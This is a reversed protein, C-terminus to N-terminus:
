ETANKGKSMTVMTAVDDRTPVKLLENALEDPPLGPVPWPNEVKLIEFLGVVCCSKCVTNQPTGQVFALITRDRRCISCIM